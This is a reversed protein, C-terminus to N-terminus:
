WHFIHNQKIIAFNNIELHRQKINQKILKNKNRNLMVFNQTENLKKQM